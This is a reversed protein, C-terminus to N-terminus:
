RRRTIWDVAVLGAFWGAVSVLEWVVAVWGPRAERHMERHLEVQCRHCWALHHRYRTRAAGCLNGALFAPLDHCTDGLM